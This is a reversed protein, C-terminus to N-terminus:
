ITIERNEIKNIRIMIILNICFYVFFTLITAYTAGDLKYIPILIINLILNIIGIGISCVSALKYWGRSIIQSFMVINTGMFIISLLLLRFYRVSSIFEDGAFLEIIFPAAFYSIIAIIFLFINMQLLLKKFDKWMTKSETIVIQSFSVMMVSYPIVLIVSIFKLAMDYIGVDNETWYFGIIIVASYGYMYGGLATSHLQLGKIVIQLLNKIDFNWKILKNRIFYVCIMITFSILGILTGLIFGLVNMKLLILIIILITGILKSILLFANYINIRNLYLLINNAYQEIILFPILVMGIIFLTEPINVMTENFFNLLIYIILLNIISVFITFCILSTVVKSIDNKEIKLHHFIVQGLSLYSITFFLKAYFIILVYQGRGYSGLYRATFSTVILGLIIVFIKTFSTSFIKKWIAIM